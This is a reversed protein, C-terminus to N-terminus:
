SPIDDTGTRKPFNLLRGMGTLEDKKTRKAAKPPTATGAHGLAKELAAIARDIYRRQRKLEQLMDNRTM